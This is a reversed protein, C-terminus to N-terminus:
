PLGPREGRHVRGGMAAALAAVPITVLIAVSTFALLITPVLGGVRLAAPGLTLATVALAAVAMVVGCVFASFIAHVAALPRASYAVVAAVVAQICLGALLQGDALWLVLADRSSVSLLLGAVLSLNGFAAGGLLGAAAALGIRFRPPKVGSQTPPGGDLM